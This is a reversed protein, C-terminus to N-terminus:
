DGMFVTQSKIEGTEYNTFEAKIYLPQTYSRGKEKCQEPTYEPDYLEPKDFSIGMKPAQAPNVSDVIPSIEAFIEELGNRTATPNKEKWAPNGILWDFSETQLTLLDPVEITETVKAFSLRKASRINKTKKASAM